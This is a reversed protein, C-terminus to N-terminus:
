KKFLGLFSSKKKLQEKITKNETELQQIKDKYQSIEQEAQNKAETNEKLLSDYKHKIEFYQGQWHTVDHEKQMLNDTLLKTKGKEESLEKIDKILDRLLQTTDNPNFVTNQTPLQTTNLTNEAADKLTTGEIEQKRKQMYEANIPNDIDIIWAKGNKQGILKASILLQRIYASDKIYCLEAFKNISVNQL